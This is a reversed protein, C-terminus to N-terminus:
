GGNVSKPIQFPCSSHKSATTMSGNVKHLTVTLMGLFVQCLQYHCRSAQRLAPYTLINTLLKQSLRMEHATIVDRNVAATIATAQLIVVVIPIMLVIATITTLLM